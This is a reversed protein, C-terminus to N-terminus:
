RGQRGNGVISAIRERFAPDDPNEPGAGAVFAELEGVARELDEKV